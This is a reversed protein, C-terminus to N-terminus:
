TNRVQSFGYRYEVDIFGYNIALMTGSNLVTPPKDLDVSGSHCSDASLINALSGILPETAFALSDSSEEPGHLVLLLKPHRYCQLHGLGTKLLETM